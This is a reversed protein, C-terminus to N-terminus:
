LLSFRISDLHGVYPYDTLNDDVGTESRHEWVGARLEGLQVIFPKGKKKEMTSTGDENTKIQFSRPV